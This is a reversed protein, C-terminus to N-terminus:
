PCDGEDYAVDVQISPAAAVAAITPILKFRLFRAFTVLTEVSTGDAAFLPPLTASLQYAADENIMAEWVEVQVTDPSILDDVRVRMTRPRGASTDLADTTAQTYVGPYSRREVINIWRENNM